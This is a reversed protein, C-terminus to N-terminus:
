CGAEFKHHVSKSILPTPLIKILSSMVPDLKFSWDFLHFNQKNIYVAETVKNNIIM